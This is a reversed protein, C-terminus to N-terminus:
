VVLALRPLETGLAMPSPAAALQGLRVVQPAVSFCHHALLRALLVAKRSFHVVPLVLPGMPPQRQYWPVWCEWLAPMRSWHFALLLLDPSTCIPPPSRQSSRTAKSQIM